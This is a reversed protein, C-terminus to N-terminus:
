LRGHEEMWPIKWALTSSHPAMAKELKDCRVYGMYRKVNDGLKTRHEGWRLFCWFESNSFNWAQNLLDLKKSMQNERNHM